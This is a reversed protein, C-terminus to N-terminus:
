VDTSVRTAACAKGEGEPSPPASRRILSPGTGSHFTMGEDAKCAAGAAHGKPRSRRESRSGAKATPVKERLSFSDGVGRGLRASMARGRNAARNRRALPPSFDVWSGSRCGPSCWGWWGGWARPCLGRANSRARVLPECAGARVGKFPLAELAGGSRLRARGLPPNLHPHHQIGEAWCKRLVGGPEPSFSPCRDAPLFSM